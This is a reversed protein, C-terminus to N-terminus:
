LFLEIVASVLTNICLSSDSMSMFSIRDGAEVKLPKDFNKYNYYSDKLEIGHQWTLNDNVSVLVTLDDKGTKLSHLSIGLIQGPFNMVYQNGGTGFNFMQNFKLPGDIGAFISITKKDPLKEIKDYLLNNNNNHIVQIENKMKQIDSVDVSKKKFGFISM